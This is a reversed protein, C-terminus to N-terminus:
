KKKNKLTVTRAQIVVDCVLWVLQLKSMYQGALSKWAGFLCEWMNQASTPQM